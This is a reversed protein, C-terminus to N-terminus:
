PYMCVCWAISGDRDVGYGIFKSFERITGERASTHSTSILLQDVPGTVTCACFSSGFQGM